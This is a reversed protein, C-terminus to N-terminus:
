VPRVYDRPTKSEADSPSPNNGGRGAPLWSRGLAIRSVASFLRTEPYLQLRCLDGLNNRRTSFHAQINVCTESFRVEEIKLTYCDLFPSELLNRAILPFCIGAQLFCFQCIISKVFYRNLDAWTQSKVCRLIANQCRSVACSM